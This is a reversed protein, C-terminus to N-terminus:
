SHTHQSFSGPNWIHWQHCFGQDEVMSFPQDDLVIFEITKTQLQKLNKPKKKLQKM